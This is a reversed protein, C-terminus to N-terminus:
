ILIEGWFVLRGEGRLRPGRFPEGSAAPTGSVSLCKGSSTLIEIPTQVGSSAALVAAAAVAGTGCALTEGEVGREYTRMRLRPGVACVFNVNAGEPGVAGHWRLYRGREMLNDSNITSEDTVVVLHPVGVMALYASSEGPELTIPVPKLETIDPLDIEALEGPAEICRTQFTGADTELAMGTPEALGIQASLRTACLSANGCMAARRGDNNFFHFRVRGAESGPGLVVLGDAGVGNRRACLSQIEGPTWMGVPSERGDLMVFDNGSGTMKYFVVKTVTARITSSNAAGM